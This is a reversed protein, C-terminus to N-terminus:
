RHKSQARSQLSHFHAEKLVRNIHQYSLLDVPDSQKSASHPSCPGPGSHPGIVDVGCHSSSSSGAAHDPSSIWSSESSSSESEWSERGTESSQLASSLRKAQPLQANEDDGEARQRKRNETLMETLGVASLLSRTHKLTKDLLM